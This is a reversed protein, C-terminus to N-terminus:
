NSSMGMFPRLTDSVIVWNDNIKNLVASEKLKGGIQQGEIKIDTTNDWNLKAVDSSVFSVTLNAYSFAPKQDLMIMMGKWSEILEKRGEILSGDQTVMSANDAYYSFIKDHNGTNYADLLNSWLTKVKDVDTNQASITTTISAFVFVIILQILSSKM